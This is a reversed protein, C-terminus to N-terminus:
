FGHICFGIELRIFSSATAQAASRLRYTTTLANFGKMRHKRIRILASRFFRGTCHSNKVEAPHIGIFNDDTKGRNQVWTWLNTLGRGIFEKVSMKRIVVGTTTNPASHATCLVVLLVFFTMLPVYYTKM